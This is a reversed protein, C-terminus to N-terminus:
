LAALEMCRALTSLLMRMGGGDFTMGFDAGLEITPDGFTEGGFWKRAGFM